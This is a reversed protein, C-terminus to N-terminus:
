VFAEKYIKANTGLVGDPSLRGDYDPFVYIMEGGYDRFERAVIPAVEKSDNWFAGGGIPGGIFYKVGSKRAESILRRFGAAIAESYNENATQRLEQHKQSQVMELVTADLKRLEREINAGKRHGIMNFRKDRSFLLVKMLMTFAERRVKSGLNLDACKIQGKKVMDYVKEISKRANHREARTLTQGAGEYGSGMWHLNGRVDFSADEPTLSPMSLFSHPGTVGDNKLNLLYGGSSTSLGTYEYRLGKNTVTKKIYGKKLFYAFLRKDVGSVVLEEQTTWGQPLGCAFYHGDAFFQMLLKAQNGLKEALEQRVDNSGGKIVQFQNQLNAVPAKVPDAKRIDTPILQSLLEPNEEVERAAAEVAEDNSLLEVIALYNDFTAHDKAACLKLYDISNQEAQKIEKLEDMKFVSKLTTDPEPDAIEVNKLNIVGSGAVRGNESLMNIVTLVDQRSILNIGNTVNKDTGILTTQIRTKLEKDKETENCLLKDALDLLTKRLEGTAENVVKKEEDTLGEGIEGNREAARALIRVPEGNVVGLYGGGDDNAGEGRLAYAAIEDLTDLEEAMSARLGFVSEISTDPITGVGKIDGMKLLRGSEDCTFCSLTDLVAAVNERRLYAKVGGNGDAFEEPTLQTKVEEYMDDPLVKQAIALLKTRLNETADNIRKAETPSYRVGNKALGGETAQTREGSHTLFKVPRNGELLAMYGKGGQAGEDSGSGFAYRALDTMLDMEEVTVTPVTQPLKLSFDSLSVEGSKDVRFSFYVSTIKGQADAVEGSMTMQLSDDGGNKTLEYNLGTHEDLDEVGLSATLFSLKKLPQQTLLLECSRAQMPNRSLGAIASKMEQRAPKVKDKGQSLDLQITQDGCKFTMGGRIRALSDAMQGDAYKALADGGEKLFKNRVLDNVCDVSFRMVPVNKLNFERTNFELERVDRPSFFDGRKGNFTDLRQAYTTRRDEHTMGKGIGRRLLTQDSILREDKDAMLKSWADCDRLCRAFFTEPTMKSLERDSPRSLGPVGDFMRRYIQVRAEGSQQSDIKDYDLDGADHAKMAAAVIMRTMSTDRAGEPICALAAFGVVTKMRINSDLNVFGDVSRLHEAGRNALDMRGLIFKVDRRELPTDIVEPNCIEGLVGALAAGQLGSENTIAACFARRVEMNKQPDDVTDNKKWYHNNVKILGQNDDSVRISGLNHEGNSIARFDALNM